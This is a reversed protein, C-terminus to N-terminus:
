AALGGNVKKVATREVFKRGKCVEGLPAQGKPGQALNGFDSLLTRNGIVPDVRFLAGLVSTGAQPDIVLGNGPTLQAWAAPVTSTLLPSATVLTLATLQRWRHAQVWAPMPRQNQRM